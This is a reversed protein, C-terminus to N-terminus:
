ARITVSTGLPVHAMLYRLATTDAHLCGSSVAGFAGGHIALRTGGRWGAPAHSQQGSLALICCGYVPSFGVGPLKDTISFTGTPTPSGAAGIGVPLSRVLSAGEYLSLTQASLSVVIRTEISAFTVDQARVWGLQGNRLGTAIVGVWGPRRAVVALVAESGFETRGDLRELLRGNPKGRVDLTAGRLRAVDAARAPAACCLLAAAIAAVWAVRGM